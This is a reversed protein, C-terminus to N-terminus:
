PKFKAQRRNGGMLGGRSCLAVRRKFEEDIVTKGEYELGYKKKVAEAALPCTCTGTQQYCQFYALLAPRVKGEAILGSAKM